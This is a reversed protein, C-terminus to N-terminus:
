SCLYQPFREAQIRGMLFLCVRFPLSKKLEMKLGFTNVNLQKKRKFFHM